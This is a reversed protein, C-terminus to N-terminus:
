GFYGFKEALMIPPCSRATWHLSRRTQPKTCSVAPVWQWLPRLWHNAPKYEQRSPKTTKKGPPSFDVVAHVPSILAHATFRLTEHFSNM